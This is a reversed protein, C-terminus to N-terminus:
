MALFLQRCRNQVASVICVCKAVRTRAHVVPGLTISLQLEHKKIDIWPTSLECLFWNSTEFGTEDYEPVTEADKNRSRATRNLVPELRERNKSTPSLDTRNPVAQFPSPGTLPKLTSTQLTPAARLLTSLCGM